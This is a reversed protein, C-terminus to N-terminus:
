PVVKFSQVPRRGFFDLAKQDYRSPPQTELVEAEPLKAIIEEPRYHRRTM